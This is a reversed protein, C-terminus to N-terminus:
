TLGDSVASKANARSRNAARWTRVYRLIASASDGGLADRVASVSVKVAPDAALRDM